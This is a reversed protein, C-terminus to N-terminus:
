VTSDKGWLQPNTHIANINVTIPAPGHLTLVKKGGELSLEMTQGPPVGKIIGLLPNYLRM